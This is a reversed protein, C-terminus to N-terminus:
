SDFNDLPMWGGERGARRKGIEDYLDEKNGNQRVVLGM